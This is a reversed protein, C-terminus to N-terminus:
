GSHIALDVGYSIPQLLYSSACTTDVMTVVGDLSRGLKGFAELDMIYIRPNCPTEGYLVQNLSCLMLTVYNNM